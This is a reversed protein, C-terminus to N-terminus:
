GADMGPRVVSRGDVDRELRWGRWRVHRMDATDRTDCAVSSRLFGHRVHAAATAPAREWGVVDETPAVRDDDAPWRDYPYGYRSAVTMDFGMAALGSVIGHTRTAYGGSNWPLTNHGVYVGSRERVVRDSHFAVPTWPLPRGLMSLEDGGAKLVKTAIPDLPHRHLAREALRVSLRLNGVNRARRATYGNALAFRGSGGLLPTADLKRYLWRRGARAKRFLRRKVRGLVPRIGRRPAVPESM